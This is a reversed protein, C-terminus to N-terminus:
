IALYLCWGSASYMVVIIECCSIYKKEWPAKKAQSKCSQQFYCEEQLPNIVVHMALM